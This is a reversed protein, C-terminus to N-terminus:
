PHSKYEILKLLNRKEYFYIHFYFLEFRLHYNLSNESCKTM